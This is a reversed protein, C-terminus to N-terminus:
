AGKSPRSPQEGRHLRSARSRDQGGQRCHVQRPLLTTSPGDPGRWAHEASAGAPRDYSVLGLMKLLVEMAVAGLPRKPTLGGGRESSGNPRRRTMVIM